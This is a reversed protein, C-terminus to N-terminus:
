LIVELDYKKYESKFKSFYNKLDVKTKNVTNVINQEFIYNQWKWPEAIPNIKVLNIM